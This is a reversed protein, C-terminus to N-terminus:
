SVDTSYNKYGRRKDTSQTTHRWTTRRTTCYREDRDRKSTMSSIARRDDVDPNPAPGVALMLCHGQGPRVGLLGNGEARWNEGEFGWWIKRCSLVM